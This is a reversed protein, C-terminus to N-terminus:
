RQKKFCLRYLHSSPRVKLRYSYRRRTRRNKGGTLDIVPRIQVPVAQRTSLNIASLPIAGNLYTSVYLRSEIIFNCEGTHSNVRFVHCLNNHLLSLPMSARYVAVVNCGPLNIIYTKDKVFDM